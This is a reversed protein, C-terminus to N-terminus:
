QIGKMKSEFGLNELISYSPAILERGRVGGYTRNRIRRNM